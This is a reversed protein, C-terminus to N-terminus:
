AAEKTACTACKVGDLGGDVSAIEQECYDCLLERVGVDVLRWASAIRERVAAPYEDHADIYKAIRAALVRAEDRLGELVSTDIDM